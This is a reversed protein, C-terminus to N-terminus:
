EEIEKLKQQINEELAKVQELEETLARSTEELESIESKLRGIAHHKQRFSYRWFRNRRFSLIAILLIAGIGVYMATKTEPRSLWEGISTKTPINGPLAVWKEALLARDNASIQSLGRDLISQLMEKGKPVAFAISYDLGTSGAIKVSTLVQKSLLFSLSAVDMAAADVEGLVVQQLAIEDDSVTEVVVRPYNERTFLEIGSSDVLAVRKGNFDSLTLTARKEFDKRVVIVVPVTVYSETFRLEEARGDSHSLTVLVDGKGDVIDAIIQSRARPTLYEINAGIKEAVLEIYEISLGQLSGSASQYSFPPNSKEPYIIITNKRSSLWATEEPTLLSAADLAHPALFFLFFASFLLSFHSAVPSKM